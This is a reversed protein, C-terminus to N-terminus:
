TSHAPLALLTCEALREVLRIAKVADELRVAAKRESNLPSSLRARHTLKHRLRMLTDLQECASKPTAGRWRWNATVDVDLYKRCMDRIKASNPSHLRDLDHSFEAQVVERWGDASWEGLREPHADLNKGRKMWARAVEKFTNRLEKPSTAARLRDGFTFRLAEEIFTEWSTVALIVAARKLVEVERRPRGSEGRMEHHWELLQRPDALYGQLLILYYSHLPDTVSRGLGQGRPSQEAGQRV